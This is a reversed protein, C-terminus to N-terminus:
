AAAKDLDTDPLFVRFRSPPVCDGDHAKELVTVGPLFRRSETTVIDREHSENEILSENPDM